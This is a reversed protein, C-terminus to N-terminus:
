GKLRSNTNNEKSYKEFFQFFSKIRPVLIEEKRYVFAISYQIPPNFPKTYPSEQGFNSKLFSEPLATCYGTQQSFRLAQDPTSFYGAVTPLNLNQDKFASRLLDNIYFSSLYTIWRQRITDKLQISSKKALLDNPQFFYLEESVITKYAYANWDQSTDDPLYLIAIDIQERELQTWIEERSLTYLSIKRKNNEEYYAALFDLFDQEEISMAIGIKIHEELEINTCEIEEAVGKFITYVAKTARLMSHGTQTLHMEKGKFYFLPAGIAKEFKKIRQTLAPQSIGLKEAAQTYNMSETLQIFYDLTKGSYVSRDRLNM